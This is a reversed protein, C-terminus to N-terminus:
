GPHTLRIGTAAIAARSEDLATEIDHTVTLNRCFAIIVGRQDYQLVRAPALTSRRISSGNALVVTSIALLAFKSPAIPGVL